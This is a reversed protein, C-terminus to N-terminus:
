AKEFFEKTLAENEDSHTYHFVDFKIGLSEFDKLDERRYIKVYDQVNIGCKEANLQIPTGHEDTACIFIVRSKGLRLKMFRTFIDAPLYTSAAHGLHPFGNAYILAATVIVKEDSM